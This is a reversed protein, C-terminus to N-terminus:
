LMEAHKLDKVSIKGSHLATAALVGSVGLDKLEVLDQFDRLGGGVYISLKDDLAKKLFDINIGEGSGVRKLDLVIVSSLGIEKFGRLLCIPDVCGPFGSKVLVEDGKLDLSVMVKSSGLIKIAEGVFSQGSLTETGIVVKAVGSNLLKEARKLDAVGADVMLKLRTEDAIHKFLVFNTQGKTIADLDAMYLETFGLKKFAHAVKLPEVSQTLVSKLPQYHKRKGRVAHVVICNYIDIVPIVKL